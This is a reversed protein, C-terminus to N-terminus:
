YPIEDDHPPELELMKRASWEDIPREQFMKAAATATEEDTFTMAYIANQGYLRTFPQNGNVAPVDVRIFSCGGITQESVRGAIRSHGFLEVVGWQEFKDTM